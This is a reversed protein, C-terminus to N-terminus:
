GGGGSQGGGADGGAGGADGDGGEGGEAEDGSQIQTGGEQDDEGPLPQGTASLMMSNEPYPDGSSMMAGAEVPGIGFIEATGCAVIMNDANRYYSGEPCDAPAAGGEGMLLESGEMNDPGYVRYMGADDRNVFMEDHALETGPGGAPQDQATAISVTLGLSASAMLAAIGLGFVQKM